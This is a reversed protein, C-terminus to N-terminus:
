KFAEFIINDRETASKEDLMARLLTELRDIDALAKGLIVDTENAQREIIACAIERWGGAHDLATLRKVNALMAANQTKAASIKQELADANFLAKSIPDNM